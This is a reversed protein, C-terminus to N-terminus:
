KLFLRIINQSLMENHYLLYVYLINQILEGVGNYKWGQGVGGNKLCYKIHKMISIQEPIKIM